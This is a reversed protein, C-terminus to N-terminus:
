CTAVIIIIILGQVYVINFYNIVEQYEGGQADPTSSVAAANSDAGFVAYQPKGGIGKQATKLGEATKKPAEVCM